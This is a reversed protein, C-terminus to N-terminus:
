RDARSASATSNRATYFSTVSVLRSSLKQPKIQPYSVTTTITSGKLTNFPLPKFNIRVVYVVCPKYLQKSTLKRCDFISVSNRRSAKNLATPLLRKGNNLFTLRKYSISQNIGLKLMIYFQPTRSM